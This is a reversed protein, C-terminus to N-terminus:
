DYEGKASLTVSCAAGATFRVSNDASPELWLDDASAATRCSLKSVGDVTAYLLHREDYGIVLTKNKALALREFAFVRGNVTLTVANVTSSTSTIRAELCCPRTGGPNLHLTAATGSATATVPLVSQWYSEDYATFTLSLDDSWTFATHNVPQTCHVYLRLGPRTSLTLWGSKAWGNVCQIVQQRKARDAEKIMFTITINLLDHGLQGALTTGYVPRKVTEATVKIQEEIDQIYLRPDLLLFEQGNLSCTFDERM